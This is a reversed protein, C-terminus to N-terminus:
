DHRLAVVTSIQTARAVPTLCAIFGVIAFLVAAALFPWLDNAPINLPSAAAVKSAVYALLLGIASGAGVLSMGERLVLGIVQSREAGLAMRIGIERTRRTVAYATIGYVGISALALGVLGLSGTVIAANRQPATADAIGEELTQSAIIPINPNLSFLIARIEGILRVEPTRRVVVSVFPFPRQSLPRYITLPSTRPGNVAKIDRAVGIVLANAGPDGLRAPLFKGVANEGPWFERATRESVIAVPQSDLADAPGFDRGSLLPIRITKFYGPEVSNWSVGLSRDPLRPEPAGDRPRHLEVTMSGAQLPNLGAISMERMGPLARVRETLESIVAYESVKVPGGPRLNITVLDVDKPDYGLDLSRIRQLAGGFLFAGVVLVISLAVQAIVFANQLRSRHTTTDAENKLDTGVDAKVSQLAPVLGCLVSSLLTLGLTFAVVRIDLHMSVNIPVGTRPLNAAVAATLSRSMLLGVGAGLLFLLIAETLLQRVLRARGAGIALRVALERRRAAGRSLLVGAVNACAIVLLLSVFALLLSFMGMVPLVLNAPIMSQKTVSLGSDANDLPFDKALAVGIAAIEAAAAATGVGSKLRGGMMAWGVDRRSFRGADMPTSGIPIWLDPSVISVGQFGEAAVGTVQLYDGNIQVSKGIIAPDGHFHRQWFAYSLVVFPNNRSDETTQPPFLQGAASAVGLTAFYNLSVTIGFVTESGDAGAMSMPRTMPEYLFVDNLTTTRQRIELYDPYSLQFVGFQGRKTRSIDVIRDPDKVGVPVRFLLANAATFVTTDAGIGIALSAAALMTFLPNRRLLRASHRLDRVFEEAFRFTRADRHKEKLVDRNGVKLIAERRAAEPDLGRKLNEETLLAIHEDLEEDLHRDFRSGLFLAKLRAATEYLRSFMM